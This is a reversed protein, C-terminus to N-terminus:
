KPLEVSVRFAHDDPYTITLQGGHMQVIREVASLGIGAGGASQTRATSGRAFRATLMQPSQAPLHEVTNDM